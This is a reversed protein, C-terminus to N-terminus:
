AIWQTKLSYKKMLMTSTTKSLNDALPYSLKFITPTQQYKELNLM